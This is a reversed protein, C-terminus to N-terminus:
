TLDGGAITEKIISHFYMDITKKLEKPDIDPHAVKIENFVADKGFDRAWEANLGITLDGFTLQM